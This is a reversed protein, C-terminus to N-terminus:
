RRSRERARTSRASRSRRRRAAPSRARDPERVPARRAPRRRVARVVDRDPKELAGVIQMGHLMVGIAASDITGNSWYGERILRRLLPLIPKDSNWVSAYVKAADDPHANMYAVADGLVAVLKRVIDPHAKAYGHARGDRHRIAALLVGGEARALGRDVQDAFGKTGDVISRRPPRDSRLRDQAGRGIGLL